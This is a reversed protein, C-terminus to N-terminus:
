KNEILKILAKKFGQDVIAIVKREKGIAQSLEQSSFDDYLYISNKQAKNNITDLTNKALDSAVFIMTARRKEITQIVLDTGSM